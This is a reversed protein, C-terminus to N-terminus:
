VVGRDVARLLSLEMCSNYRIQLSLRQRRRVRLQQLIKLGRASNQLTSARRDVRHARSEIDFFTQVAKLRGNGCGIDLSIEGFHGFRHGSIALVSMNARAVVAIVSQQQILPWVLLDLQRLRLRRRDM